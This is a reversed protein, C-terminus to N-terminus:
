YVLGFMNGYSQTLSLKFTPESITPFDFVVEIIWNLSTMVCSMQASHCSLMHTAHWVHMRLQAQVVQFKQRNVLSVSYFIRWSFLYLYLHELVVRFVNSKPLQLVQQFLKVQEISFRAVNHFSLM